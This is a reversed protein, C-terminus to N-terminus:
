RVERGWPGAAPAVPDGAHPTSWCGMAGLRSPGGLHPQCLPCCWGSGVAPARTIGWCCSTGAPTGACQTVPTHVHLASWRWRTGKGAGQSKPSPALLGIPLNCIYLGKWMCACTCIPTHMYTWACVYTCIYAYVSSCAHVCLHARHTHVCVYAGGKGQVPVATGTGGGRHPADRPHHDWSVSPHGAWDRTGAPGILVECGVAWLECGM